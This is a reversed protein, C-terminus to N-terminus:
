SRNRHPTSWSGPLAAATHLALAPDGSSRYAAQWLRDAAAASIRVDPDALEGRTLGAEALVAEGDGGSRELAELVARSSISLVSVDMPGSYRGM